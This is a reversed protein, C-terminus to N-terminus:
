QPYFLGSHLASLRVVKMHRDDKFDQFRLRRFGEPDTWAQVPIEELKGDEQLFRINGNEPYAPVL